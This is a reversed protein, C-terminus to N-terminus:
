TIVTTRISLVLSNSILESDNPHSTLVPAGSRRLDLRPDRIIALRNALNAVILQDPGAGRIHAFLHPGM